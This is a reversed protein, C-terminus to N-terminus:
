NFLVTTLNNQAKYEPAIAFCVRFFGPEEVARFFFPVATLDFVMFFDAALFFVAGFFFSGPLFLPLFDVAFFSAIGFFFSAVLRLFLSPTVLENTFLMLALFFFFFDLGLFFDVM